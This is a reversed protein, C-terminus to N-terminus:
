QYWADGGEALSRGLYDRLDGAVWRRSDTEHEWVFIDPRQPTQVFAFQDGGGNDGFFLLADFSMYLQAFSSDTRFLLNQAVIQEVSWVTDVATHGIIGDCELLLQRLDDPLGRGLRHEADALAAM